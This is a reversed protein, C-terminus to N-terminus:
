YSQISIINYCVKEREDLPKVFFRLFFYLGVGAFVRKRPYM